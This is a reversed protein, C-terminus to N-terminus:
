TLFSGIVCNGLFLKDDVHVKILISREPQEASAANSITSPQTPMHQNIFPGTVEPAIADIIPSAIVDDMLSDSTDSAHEMDELEGAERELPELHERTLPEIIAQPRKKAPPSSDLDDFRVRRMDVRKDCKAPPSKRWSPKSPRESGVPSRPRSPRPRRVPGDAVIIPVTGLNEAPKTPSSVAALPREREQDPDVGVLRMRQELENVTTAYDQRDDSSLRREQSARLHWERLCDLPTNGKNDLAAVNAKNDVLLKIM